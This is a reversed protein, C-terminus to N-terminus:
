IGTTSLRSHKEVRGDNQETTQFRYVGFVFRNDVYFQGFKISTSLLLFQIRKRM